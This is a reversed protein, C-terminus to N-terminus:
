LRDVGYATTTRNRVVLNNAKKKMKYLVKKYIRKVQNNKGNLM